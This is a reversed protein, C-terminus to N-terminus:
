QTGCLVRRLIKYYGILSFFRSFFTYTYSFWTASCRSSVCCQLDVLSWSFFFLLSFSSAPSARRRGQEEQRNDPGKGQRRDCSCFLRPGDFTDPPHIVKLPLLPKWHYQSKFLQITKVGPMPYIVTCGSCLHAVIVLSKMVFKRETKGCQMAQPIKTGWGPIWPLGECHFRLTRVM